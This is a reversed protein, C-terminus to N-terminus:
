AAWRTRGAAGPRSRSAEQELDSRFVQLVVTTQDLTTNADSDYDLYVAAYADTSPGAPPTRTLVAYDFNLQWGTNAALPFDLQLGSHKNIVEVPNAIGNDPVGGEGTTIDKIFNTTTLLAYCDVSPNGNGDICGQAENPDPNSPVGLTFVNPDVFAPNVLTGAFCLGQVWCEPGDRVVGPSEHWPSPGWQTGDISGVNNANDFGGGRPKTTAFAIPPRDSPPPTPDNQDTCGAVVTVLVLLAPPLNRYM